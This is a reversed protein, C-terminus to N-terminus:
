GRDRPSPSTYLLCISYWGYQDWWNTKGSESQISIQFPQLPQGYMSGEVQYLGAGGLQWHFSAQYGNICKLPSVAIDNVDSHKGSSIWVVTCNVTQSCFTVPLSQFAVYSILCVVPGGPEFSTGNASQCSVTSSNPSPQTFPVIPVIMTLPIDDIQVDM